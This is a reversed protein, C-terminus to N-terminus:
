GEGFLMQAVTEGRERPKGAVKFAPCATGFLLEDARLFGGTVACKLGKEHAVKHRCYSCRRYNVSM